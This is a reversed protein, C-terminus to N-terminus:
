KPLKRSANRHALSHDHRRRYRIRRRKVAREAIIEFGVGIEDGVDFLRDRDIVDTRERCLTVYRDDELVDDFLWTEPQAIDQHLVANRLGAREANRATSDSLRTLVALSSWFFPISITLFAIVQGARWIAM